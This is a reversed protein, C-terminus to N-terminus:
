SIECHCRRWHKALVLGDLRDIGADCSEFGRDLRCQQDIGIAVLDDIGIGGGAGQETVVAGQQPLGLGACKVGALERGEGDKGLGHQVLAGIPGRRELGAVGGPLIESKFIGAADQRM